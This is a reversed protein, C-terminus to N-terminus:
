AHGSTSAIFTMLLHVFLFIFILVVLVVAFGLLKTANPRMRNIVRRIVSVNNGNLSSNESVNLSGIEEQFLCNSTLVGYALDDRSTVGSCNGLMIVTNTHLPLNVV